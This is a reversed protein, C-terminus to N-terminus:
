RAIANTKEPDAALDKELILFGLYCVEKWFLQCKKPLLKLGAGRLRDFIINLRQLLEVKSRFVVVDDLYILCIKGILGCLIKEM